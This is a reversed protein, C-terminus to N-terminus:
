DFLGLNLMNNVIFITGIILLVVVLFIMVKLIFTSKDGKVVDGFEDYSDMDINLKSLTKTVHEDHTEPTPEKVVEKKPEVKVEEKAQQKVEAQKEAVKEKIVVPKVEEELAEENLDDFLDLAQSVEDDKKSQKNKLELVTITNILEMLNDEDAKKKNHYADPESPKSLDLNNLIEYQTQRVSKLREKNYNIDKGEKAKKLIVNIDYEKTDHLPEPEDLNNEIVISRRKPTNDVYDNDLLNRLNGADIRSSNNNLMTTNEEVNFDTISSNKVEEYLAKNKEM